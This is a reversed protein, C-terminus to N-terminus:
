RLFLSDPLAADVAVICLDHGNGRREGDLQKTFVCIGTEVDPTVCHRTDDGNGSPPEDGFVADAKAAAPGSDLLPCCPCRAEYSPRPIAIAQWADRGHHVVEVVDGLQVAPMAPSRERRSGLGDALEVPDLMAVWRYDQYMPDDYRILDAEVPREV